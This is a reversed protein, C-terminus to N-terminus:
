DIPLASFQQAQYGALSIWANNIKRIDNLFLDPDVEFIEAAKLCDEFRIGDVAMLSIRNAIERIYAQDEESFGQQKEAILKVAAGNFVVVFHPSRKLQNVDKDSYTKHILELFLAAKKPDDLRFDYAIELGTLGNLSQYPAATASSIGLNMATYLLLYGFFIKRHAKM